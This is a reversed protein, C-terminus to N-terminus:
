DVSPSEGSHEPTIRFERLLTTAYVGSPLTFTFRLGEAENEIQLNKPRILYPRRGGPTHKRFKCFHERTLGSQQLIQAEYEAVQGEPNRMKPGFLPGTTVIEGTEFRPQEQEPDEVVFVGGSATVQMVDGLLVKEILDNELRHALCQNFLDSQVASLALRLLFKRRPKPISRDSKEGHLLALGTELTERDQGFRQDGFYNPFGIAQVREAIPLARSHAELPVDRVRISFRNGRLHGTKLKNRHRTASLVHIEDTEVNPLKAEAWAPISVFQRTIARRDKMGAMGIELRSIELTRALHRLLYEASINRKEIWLYLHDGTGSPEYLPIEEVQFDDPIQKIVGGVGPCNNTLWPLPSNMM